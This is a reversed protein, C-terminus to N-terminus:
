QSKLVSQKSFFWRTSSSERFVRHGGQGSLAGLSGVQKQPPTHRGLFSGFFGSVLPSVKKQENNQAEAILKLSMPPPSLGCKGGKGLDRCCAAMGAFSLCQLVYKPLARPWCHTLPLCTGNVAVPTCFVTSSKHGNQLLYCIAYSLIPLQIKVSPFQIKGYFSHKKAWVRSNNSRKDWYNHQSQVM